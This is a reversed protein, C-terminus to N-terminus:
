PSTPRRVDCRTTRGLAPDIGRRREHPSDRNGVATGSQRDRFGCRRSPARHPRPRSQLYRGRTCRVGTQPRGRTGRRPERPIRPLHCAPDAQRGIRYLREDQLLIAEELERLERSPAIGLEEALTTTLRQFARLADAQRGCRYLALMLQAWRKERLPEAGIAAELDGIIEAHEGADLRADVLSEEGARRLEALRASEAMGVRQDNLELLPEGRWTELAESLLGIAATSEGAQVARMGDLVGDEFCGIDTSQRTLSLRYGSPTTEITGAPLVKRLTSVYTQVNKAAARPPEDGWIGGILEGVHVNSPARLALISLVARERRATPLPFPTGDDTLVRLPGLLEVRM